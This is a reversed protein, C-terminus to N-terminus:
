RDEESPCYGCGDVPHKHNQHARFEPDAWTGILAPDVGDSPNVPACPGHPREFSVVIEDDRAHVRIADDSPTAGKDMSRGIEAIAANIAQQVQNWCAGWPGTPVRYDITDRTRETRSWTSM